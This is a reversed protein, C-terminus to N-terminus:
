LAPKVKLPLGVKYFDQWHALQAHLASVEAKADGSAALGEEARQARAAEAHLREKLIEANSVYDKLKRAEAVQQESAALEERLNRLEQM